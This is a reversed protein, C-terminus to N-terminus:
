ERGWLGVTCGSNAAPNVAYSLSLAAFFYGSRLGNSSASSIQAGLQGDALIVTGAAQKTSAGWKVGALGPM